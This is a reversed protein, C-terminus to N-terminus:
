TFLRKSRGLFLVESIGTKAMGQWDCGAYALSVGRAALDKLSTFVPNARPLPGTDQELGKCCHAAKWANRVDKRSAALVHWCIAPSVWV